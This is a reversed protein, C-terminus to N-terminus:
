HAKSAGGLRFLNFPLFVCPVSVLGEKKVAPAHDL